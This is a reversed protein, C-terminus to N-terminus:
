KVYFQHPAGSRWLPRLPPGYRARGGNVPGHFAAELPLFGSQPLRYFVTGEPPGALRRAARGARSVVRDIYSELFLSGYRGVAGIWSPFRVNVEFVWAHGSSDTRWELEFAAPGPLEALMTAIDLDFGIHEDVRAAVTTGLQTIALKTFTLTAICEGGTDALILLSHEQGDIVSEAYVGRCDGQNAPNRLIARRAVIAELDDDCRVAGKRIGKVMIPYRSEDRFRLADGEDDFPWHQPTRAFPDIWRQLRPKDSLGKAALWGVIPCKAALEPFAAVHEVLSYLHADTGPLIVEIERETCLAAIAAAFARTDGSPHPLPEIEAGIRQLINVAAASDDVAVIHHRGGSRALSFLQYGPLDEFPNVGLILIRAM